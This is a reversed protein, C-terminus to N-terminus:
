WELRKTKKTNIDDGVVHGTKGKGTWGGTGIFRVRYFPSPTSDADKNYILWSNTGTGFDINVINPTGGGKTVTVTGDIGNTFSITTPDTPTVTGNTATLTVNGDDIGATGHKEAFWWNAENSQADALLGNVLDAMGKNQCATLGLDCYIVIGVPTTISSTTINDYFFKNTKARAYLYHADMSMTDNNDTISDEDTVNIDTVTFIFPNVPDTYNRDFNLQVTLKATGNHDTNFVAATPATMDLVPGLSESGNKDHVPTSDDYWRYLINTLMGPNSSSAIENKILYGLKFSTMAEAYCQDNYNNTTLNDETQAVIDMSLAAVMAEEVQDHTTDISAL